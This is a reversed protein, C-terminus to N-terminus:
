FGELRDVGSGLRTAAQTFETLRACDIGLGKEGESPNSVARVADLVSGCCVLTIMLGIKIM